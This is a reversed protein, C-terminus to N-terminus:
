ENDMIKLIHVVHLDGERIIRLAGDTIDIVTSGRANPLDGSDIIIDVLGDMQRLLAKTDLIGGLGSINASTSIIAGGAQSAIATAIESMPWRIGIKGSGATLYESLSPHHPFLITLPGPWFHKILRQAIPPVDQVWRRLDSKDSIILPLPMKSPRRKVKFIRKIAAENQPDGGLGYFTETPYVVLGGQRIIGAAEEIVYPDPNKLPCPLVRTKVRAVDM